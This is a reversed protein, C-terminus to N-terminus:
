KGVKSLDHVDQMSKHTACDYGQYNPMSIYATGAIELWAPVPYGCNGHAVSILPPKYFVCTSCTKM